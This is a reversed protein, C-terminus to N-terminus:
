LHHRHIGETKSLIPILIDLNTHDIPIIRLLLLGLDLAVALIIIVMTTGIDKNKLVITILLRTIVLRRFHPTMGLKLLGNASQLSELRGTNHVLTLTLTLQVRRINEVAKM